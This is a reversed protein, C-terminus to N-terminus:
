PMSIYSKCNWTLEKRYEKPTKGTWKKFAHNFSSQESYGLMFAIDILLVNKRGLLHIASEKRVQDLIEQFSTSEEKLKIQVNRQGISLSESFATLTHEDGELIKKKIFLKAKDGISLTDYIREELTDAYHKLYSLFERRALPFTRELENKNFILSNHKSNFDPKCDFIREYEETSGPKKHIFQIARFHIGKNTTSLLVSSLLGMASEPIHRVVDPNNKSFEFEIIADSGKIKLVPQIIDTMLRHYKILSQIAERLTNCNKMITFMFHGEGGTALTEGFHLGLYPDETKKSVEQWLSDIISAQIRTEENDLDDSSVPLFNM